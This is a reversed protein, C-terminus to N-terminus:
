QPSPRGRTLHEVAMTAIPIMDAAARGDYFTFRMWDPGVRVDLASRGYFDVSSLAADAGAVIEPSTGDLEEFAWAGAPLTTLSVLTADEYINLGEAYLCLQGGDKVYYVEAPIGWGGLMTFDTIEVHTGLEAAVEEATLLSECRAAAIESPGVEVERLTSAASALIGEIAARVRGEDAETIGPARLSGSMLVEGDRLDIICSSPYCRVGTAGNEGAGREAAGDIIRQADPVIAIGWYADPSSEPDFKEPDGASCAIGGARQMMHQAPGPYWNPASTLGMVDKEGGVSGGLLDAIVDNVDACTVDFAAEPAEIPEETPTPTPSPTPSSASPSPSVEPTPACGTLILVTVLSFVVLPRVRM